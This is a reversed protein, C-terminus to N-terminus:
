ELAFLLQKSVEPITDYLKNGEAYEITWTFLVCIKFNFNIRCGVNRNVGQCHFSFLPHTQFFFETVLERFIKAALRSQEEKSM